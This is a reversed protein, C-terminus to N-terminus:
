DKLFRGKNALEMQHAVIKRAMGYRPRVIQFVIFSFLVFFMATEFHGTLFFFLYGYISISAILLFIPRSRRSVGAVIDEELTDKSRVMPEEFLRGRWWLAIAAELLSLIGFIVLVTDTAGGLRDTVSGSNAIFFCVFLLSVPIVINVLLGFYLSRAIIRNLDIDEYHYKSDM